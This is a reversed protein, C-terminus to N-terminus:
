LLGTFQLVFSENFWMLHMLIFFKLTFFTDFPTATVQAYSGGLHESSQIHPLPRKCVDSTQLVADSRWVTQAVRGVAEPPLAVDVCVFAVATLAEYFLYHTGFICLLRCLVTLDYRAALWCSSPTTLPPANTFCFLNLSWRRSMMSRISCWQWSSSLSLSFSTFYLIRWSLCKLLLSFFALQVLNMIFYLEISLYVIFFVCSWRNKSYAPMMVDPFSCSVPVCSFVACMHRSVFM